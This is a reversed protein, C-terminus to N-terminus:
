RSPRVLFRRLAHIKTKSGFADWFRGVRVAHVTSIAEELLAGRREPSGLMGRSEERLQTIPLGSVSVFAETAMTKDVASMGRFLM